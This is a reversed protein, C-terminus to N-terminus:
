PELVYVIVDRRGFNYVDTKSEFFLDIRKGKIAGGVDEAVAMGYSPYGDASEVYLQTRLPIVNRDVAVVGPRLKTGLATIGVWKGNSEASADYATAEMRIIKVVKKGGKMLGSGSVNEESVIKVPEKTGIEKIEEVPAVVIKEEVVETKVEENNLYTKESKVISTGDQGEQVIKTQGKLLNPNENILSTHSVTVVDSVIKEAVRNIIIVTEEGEVFELHEDLAPVSYDKEGLEYGKTELISEVLIHASSVTKEVGNDVVLIERPYKIEIEMKNTIETDLAPTVIMDEVIKVGKEVMFGEVTTATTEYNFKENELILTVERSLLTTAGMTIVVLVLLMLIARLKGFRFKEETM